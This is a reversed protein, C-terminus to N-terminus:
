GHCVEAAQLDEDIALLGKEKMLFDKCFVRLLQFLYDFLFLLPGLDSARPYLNIIKWSARISKLQHGSETVVVPRGGDGDRIHREEMATRDKKSHGFLHGSGIEQM